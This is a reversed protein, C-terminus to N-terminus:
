LGIEYGYEESNQAVWLVVASFMITVSQIVNAVGWHVGFNEPYHPIMYKIVLVTISGALGGAMLAFGVFLFLRARWAVGGGSWSGDWDGGDDSMLRSKDILNVIIMGLTACLGPTWDAFSVRVPVPDYPSDPDTIPSAYKSSITADLFAWWGFAFLAGALYVLFERKRPGLHLKPLRILCVRRPDGSRLPLSSHATSM